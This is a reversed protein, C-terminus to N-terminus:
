PVRVDDHVEIADAGVPIGMRSLRQLTDSLPESPSRLLVLNDLHPITVHNSWIHTRNM